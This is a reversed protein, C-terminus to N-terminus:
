AAARRRAKYQRMYERHAERCPGCVPTGERHHREYAAKTGCPKFGGRALATQGKGQRFGGQGGDRRREARVWTGLTTQSVGHRRAVEAQSRGGGLYEAVAAAVLESSAAALPHAEGVPQRNRDLKDQNNDAVTGLILHSAEVCGVRDCTHRVVLGDAISGYQVTAVARHASMAGGAFRIWGYGRQPGMLCDGDRTSRALYRAVEQALTGTRRSM